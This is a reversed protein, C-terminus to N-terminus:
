DLGKHPHTPQGTAVQTNAPVLDLRLQAPAGGQSMLSDLALPTPQERKQENSTVLSTEHGPGKPFAHSNIYYNPVSLGWPRIMEQAPPDNPNEKLPRYPRRSMIECRSLTQLLLPNGSTRRISSALRKAKEPATLHPLLSLFALKSTILIIDKGCIAGSSM